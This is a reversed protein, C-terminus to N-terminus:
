ATRIWRLSWNRWIDFAAVHIAAQRSGGAPCGRTEGFWGHQLEVLDFLSSSNLRFLKQLNSYQRHEMYLVEGKESIVLSLGQLEVQVLSYWAASLTEIALMQLTSWERTGFSTQPCKKGCALAYMHEQIWKTHTRAYTHTRAHTHTLAHAHKRAHTRTPVPAHLSRGGGGRGVAANKKTSMQQANKRWVSCLRKSGLVKAGTGLRRTSGPALSPDSRQRASRGNTCSTARRTDQCAFGKDAFGAARNM